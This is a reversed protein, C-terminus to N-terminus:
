GGVEGHQPKSRMMTAQLCQTDFVHELKAISSRLRPAHARFCNAAQHFWSRPRVTARNEVPPWRSRVEIANRPPVWHRQLLEIPIPNTPSSPRTNGDCTILASGVKYIHRTLPNRSQRPLLNRRQPAEYTVLLEPGRWVLGMQGRKAGLFFAFFAALALSASSSSSSSSSSSRSSSPESSSTSSSPSLSSPSSAPRGEL